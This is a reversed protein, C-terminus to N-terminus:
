AVSPSIKAQIMPQSRMRSYTTLLTTTAMPKLAIGFRLESREAEVQGVSPRRRNPLGPVPRASVEVDWGEEDNENKGHKQHAADAFRGLRVVNHDGHLNARDQDEEHHASRQHVGIVPFGNAGEPNPPM